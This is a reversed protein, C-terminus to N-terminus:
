AKKEKKLIYRVTPIALVIDAAIWAGPDGFCVAAFAANSATSDVPAGGVLAPLFACILMRAVLEAIGAGLVYGPRSIGQVANRMVFLAGLMVFLSLDVLMYTGGFRLSEATIKDASLFIHQYAGGLMLLGGGLLVAATLILMMGFTQLTGRRIRARDGRGFNQANYGLLGSGLGNYATMLFNLLKNAAGFGNQAPTGAVMEGTATLDFQVVAGQMVIIGVALISFQLGLPVGQRIHSFLAPMPVRWDERAPRLAPYKWLTYVACGVLSLLQATVTAIAAGAPGMHLPVLFLLDLGVNLATSVALFLLPTFSDGFARLIGCILNYGIQAATGIFIILCYTYAATYVEGHAPTVHILALLQPLLAVSLATLFASIGISLEIQAAFSRRVGHMDRSGVCNATIVSFGATCGFAFQLFIFTLPMTDNVGAVQEATLVQGCIIADTLTYIQQLYYSLIIPAAYLLIVRWPTGSTLDVPRSLAGLAASIGRPKKATNKM